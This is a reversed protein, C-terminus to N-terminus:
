FAIAPCGALWDSAKVEGSLRVGFMNRFDTNSTDDSVHWAIRPAVPTGRLTATYPAANTSFCILVSDAKLSNLTNAEPSERSWIWFPARVVGEGTFGGVTSSTYLFADANYASVSYVPWDAFVEDASQSPAVSVYVANWGNTLTINQEIQAGRALLAVAAAVACVTARAIM